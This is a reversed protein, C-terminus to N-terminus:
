WDWGNHALINELLTKMEEDELCYRQMCKYVYHEMYKYIVGESALDKADDEEDERLASEFLRELKM